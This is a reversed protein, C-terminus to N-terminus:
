KQRTLLNFSKSTMVHTREYAVIMLIGLLQGGVQYLTDQSVRQPRNKGKLAYLRELNSLRAQYDAGDDPTIKAMEDQIYTILDDLTKHKEDM